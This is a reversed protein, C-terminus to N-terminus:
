GRINNHGIFAGLALFSRWSRYVASHFFPHGYQGYCLIWLEVTQKGRSEEHGQEQKRPILRKGGHAASEGMRCRRFLARSLSCSCPYFGGFQRWNIAHEPMSSGRNQLLLFFVHLELTAHVPITPFTFDTSSFSHMNSTKEQVHPPHLLQLPNDM